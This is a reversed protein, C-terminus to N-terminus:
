NKTCRICNVLSSNLSLFCWHMLPKPLKTCFVAHFTPVPCLTCRKTMQQM